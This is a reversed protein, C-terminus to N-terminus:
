SSIDNSTNNLQRGQNYTWTDCTADRDIDGHAIVLFTDATAASGQDAGVTPCNGAALPHGPFVNGGYNYAYRTSGVPVWALELWTANYTDFEAKWAEAVTGIATINVRAETQRARGQYRAFNPVAIAALIGIIAVVIMLEILTFGRQELQIRM